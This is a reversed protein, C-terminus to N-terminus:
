RPRPLLLKVRVRKRSSNRASDTAVVAIRAV